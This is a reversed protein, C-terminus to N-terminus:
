YKKINIKGFNIQCIFNILISFVGNCDNDIVVLTICIDYDSLSFVLIRSDTFRQFTM